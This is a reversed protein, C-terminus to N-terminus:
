QSIQQKATKRVEAKLGQRIQFEDCIIIEWITMQQYNRKEYRKNETLMVLDFM